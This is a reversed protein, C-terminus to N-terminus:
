AGVFLGCSRLEQFWFDVGSRSQARNMVYWSFQDGLPSGLSHPADLASIDQSAESRSILLCFGRTIPIMTEWRLM